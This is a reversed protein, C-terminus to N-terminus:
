KKEENIIISKKKAVGMLNDIIDQSDRTLSEIRTEIEKYNSSASAPPPNESSPSEELLSRYENILGSALRNLDGMGPAIGRYGRRTSQNWRGLVVPVNTFSKKRRGQGQPTHTVGPAEPAAPISAGEGLEGSPPNVVLGSGEEGGEAGGAADGTLGLDKMDKESVGLDGAEDGEGGGALKALEDDTAGTMEAVANEIMSDFKSDTFRQMQNHIFDAYSMGFFKKAIEYRGFFGDTAASAADFRTKWWELEQLESIRSPNNLRLSWSVLDNGTYGLVALHIQGFTRLGDLFAAQLNLITRAFEIDKQALTTKDEIADEGQSIYAAPIKISALLQDRAFKLDDIDGTYAGGQLTEVDSLSGARVPIFIDNEIDQAAYRYDVRGDAESIVRNSKINHVFAEMYADVENPPVNGVDVKYKRREPSRVIRYGIVANYLLDYIRYARRAGNLISTGYPYYEDGPGKFHVVQWNEFTMGRTNWQFQTYNPNMIDEGEIREIEQIPLTIVRRIGKGPEVDSYVFFDGQKCMTRVWPFANREINLIDYYLSQLLIKIESNPCDIKLIPEFESYTTINNAYIDLGSKLIPCFEMQDFEVYREMRNQNSILNAQIQSFPHVSARKFEQGSVSKFVKQFVDLDRRNIRAPHQKHWNVIPGSFLRTLFSYLRSKPNYPNKPNRNYRPDM